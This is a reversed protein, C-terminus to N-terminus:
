KRKGFNMVWNYLSVVNKLFCMLVFSWYFESVFDEWSFVQVSFKWLGLCSDLVLVLIFVVWIYSFSFSVLYDFLGGWFFFFIIIIIIIMYANFFFLLFGLLLVRFFSFLFFLSPSLSFRIVLVLLTLSQNIRMPNSFWAPWRYKVKVTLQYFRFLEIISNPIRIFLGDLRSCIPARFDEFGWSYARHLFM